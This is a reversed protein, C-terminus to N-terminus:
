LAQQAPKGRLAAKIENLLRAFRSAEADQGGFRVAMYLQTLQGVRTAVDGRPLSSAFELPTQASAKRWGVRELMRLMRSYSLSAAQVPVPGAIRLQRALMLWERLPRSRVSLALGVLAALLIPIWIPVRKLRTQWDRVRAMGAARANDFETQVGATWRRSTRQLGQAITFQRVFDYNIIWDNWQLQFWDWYLGAQALLGRPNDDSPPTPDFTIWGQGPFFVEVWSHADRARIIFDGGLDNYEGPLFGNVYRTPVGLTRLMVTMAAAFYECHGARKEFLFYALPDAPPPGTLDLTYGFNNRLYSEVARAQDYPNQARSTIAKALAPIRADLEPLQLYLTRMSKPYNTSARRLMNLPPQPLESVADYRLNAFNHFPNSLSGTQDETLYTRRYDRGGVRATGAFEGRIRVPDAAVFLADSALPELFVTYQLPKVYKRSAAASGNMAVWGDAGQGLAVSDRNESYWRRGDFTTLAIGRWHITRAIATDGQVKIRMVLASSRKIEGIRGLEVDDTFGSMLSPQLNFRSLYGPNFRPLLFFIVTGFILAGSAVASSTIGLATHLRRAPSTGSHIQPSEAAEASRRMELGIFTSVALALFILFFLIFITDVTLIASALMASFALLALFLYDRTTNASYLRIILAYLLLHITALLASFLAPNQADSSVLRSVWWFDLPFFVFYGVVLLTAARHSLEPPCGHWWRYGKLLLAAPALLISVLDLKGTSVLALVSVLLLFYLSIEFYRDLASRKQDLPMAFASM